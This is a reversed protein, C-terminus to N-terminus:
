PLNCNLARRDRIIGGTNGHPSRSHNRLHSCRHSSSRMGSDSRAQHFFSVQPWARRDQVTRLEDEALDLRPLDQFAEGKELKIKVAQVKRLM